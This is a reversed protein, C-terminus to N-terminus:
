GRSFWWAVVVFSTLGMERWRPADNIRDRADVIELRGASGFYAFVQHEAVSHPPGTMPGEYRFCNLLMQADDTMLEVLKAAYRPRQEDSMAVLAARDWVRDFQGLLAPTADFIDGVFVHLSGHSWVSFPGQERITPELRAEEFLSRAALASLEVGVVEHGRDALWKLDLSKGSLPVLVRKPADGLLRDAYQILHPHVIDQHFGLRGQQWMSLWM